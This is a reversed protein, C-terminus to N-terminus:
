EQEVSVAWRQFESDTRWDVSVPGHPETATVVRDTADAQGLYVQDGFKEVTWHQDPNFRNCPRLLLQAGPRSPAQLCQGRKAVSEILAARQKDLGHLQWKQYDTGNPEWLIPNDGGTGNADLMQDTAPNYFSVVPGDDGSEQAVASTAVAGGMLAAAGLAVAVKKKIDLL